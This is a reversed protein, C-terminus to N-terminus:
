IRVIPDPGNWGAASEAVLLWLAGAFIEKVRHECIRPEDTRPDIFLRVNM